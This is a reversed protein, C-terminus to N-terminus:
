YDSYLKNTQEMDRQKIAKDIVDQLLSATIVTTPPLQDIEVKIYDLADM